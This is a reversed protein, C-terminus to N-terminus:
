STTSRTSGIVDLVVVPQSRPSNRVGVYLSASPPKDTLTNHVWPKHKKEEDQSETEGNRQRGNCRWAV